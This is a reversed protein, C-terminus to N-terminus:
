AMVESRASGEVHQMSGLFRVVRKASGALAGAREPGEAAYLARKRAASGPGCLFAQLERKDRNQAM